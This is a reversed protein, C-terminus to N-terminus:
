AALVSQVVEDGHKFQYDLARCQAESPELPANKAADPKVSITVKGDSPRDSDQSDYAGGRSQFGAWARLRAKGEWCDDIWELKGFPPYSGGPLTTKKPKRVTLKHWALSGGILSGMGFVVLLLPLPVIWLLHFKSFSTFYSLALGT